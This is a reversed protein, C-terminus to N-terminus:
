RGWRVAQRSGASATPGCITASVRSKRAASVAGRVSRYFGEIYDAPNQRALNPDGPDLLIGADGSPYDFVCSGVDSGDKVDVVVARVSNTGYDVGIAFRREPSKAM